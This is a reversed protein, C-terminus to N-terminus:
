ESKGSPVSAPEESLQGGNETPKTKGIAAQMRRARCLDGCLLSSLVSWLLLILLQELSANNSVFYGVAFLHLGLNLLVFLWRLRRLGSALFWLAAIGVALFLMPVTIAEM